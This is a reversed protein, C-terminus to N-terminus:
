TEANEEIYEFLKIVREVGDVNRAIEAAMEAQERTSIGMLFVSSAETIVKVRTADFGRKGLMKSKVKSTIWTDNSRSSFDSLDGVVIESIVKNVNKINRTINIAQDRLDNTLTEGTLLVIHNFSTVNIHIQKATNNQHYILDVAKIEIAEDQIQIETSRRDHAILVASGAAGAIIFACGHMLSCSIFLIFLQTTAALGFTIKM